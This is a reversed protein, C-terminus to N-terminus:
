ENFVGKIADKKIKNLKEELEEISQNLSFILLRNYKDLCKNKKKIENILKYTQLIVFHIEKFTGFVDKNKIKEKWFPLIMYRSTFLMKTYENMKHFNESIYLNATVICDVENLFKLHIDSM